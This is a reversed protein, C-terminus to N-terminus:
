RRSMRPACRRGFFSLAIIAIANNVHLHKNALIGENASGPVCLRCLPIVRDAAAARWERGTELFAIAGRAPRRWGGAFLRRVSIASASACLTTSTPASPLRRRSASRTASPSGCAILSTSLIARSSSRRSGVSGSARGEKAGAPSPHDRVQAYRTEIGKTEPRFIFSMRM